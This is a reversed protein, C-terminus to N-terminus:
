CEIYMNIVETKFVFSVSKTQYKSISQSPSSLSPFDTADGCLRSVSNQLKAHYTQLNTLHKISVNGNNIPISYVNNVIM